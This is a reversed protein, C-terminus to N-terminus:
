ARRRYHNMFVQVATTVLDRAEFSDLVGGTPAAFCFMGCRLYGGITTNTVSIREIGNVFAKITSGDAQVKYTDGPNYTLALSDLVTPTANFELTLTLVDAYNYLTYGTNPTTMRCVPGQATVNTGGLIVVQTYHDDSSLDTDARVMDRGGNVTNKAARNSEVAWDGSLETWTLDPGLITSDAKNFSETITTARPLRGPVHPLLSPPVFEQWQNIRYKVCWSDLVKRSIIQDQEFVRRFDLRLLDRLRNTHPHTGWVFRERRVESHGGVYLRLFGDVDPTLPKPGSGGSPDSGVTLQDWLLDTLTDGQPNHGMVSQWASKIMATAPTMGMHLSTALTTGGLPQPSAAFAFGQPTPSQIESISRLDVYGVCSAPLRCIPM